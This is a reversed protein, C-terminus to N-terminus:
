RSRYVLSMALYGFFAHLRDSALDRMMRHHASVVGLISTLLLQRKPYSLQGMRFDHFHQVYGHFEHMQQIMAAHAEWSPDVYGYVPRHAYMFFHQQSHSRVRERTGGQPGEEASLHEHHQPHNNHNM